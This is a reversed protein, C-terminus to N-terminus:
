HPMNMRITGFLSMENLNLTEASSPLFSATLLSAPVKARVRPVETHPSAEAETALRLPINDLYATLCDPKVSSPQNSFCNVVVM